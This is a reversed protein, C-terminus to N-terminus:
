AYLGGLTVSEVTPSEVDYKLYFQTGKSFQPRQDGVMAAASLDIILSKGAGIRYHDNIGDHSVYVAKDTDNAVWWIQLSQDLAAGFAGYSAGVSGFAVERLAIPKLRNQFSM